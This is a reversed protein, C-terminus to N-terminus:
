PHANYVSKNFTLLGPAGAYGLHSLGFLSEISALLSFDNYEGVINISAPKTDQSILLLGVRGGGPVTSQTTGTEGAAGSTGAAAPASAPLNPFASTMCCGSADANPGTQPAQDFTIAILGGEKYAPSKEIQPVTTSLFTDAATLGAPAGAACPEESGDRCRDPVIYSLSPTSKATKLNSALQGVGVVSNTCTANGTVGEFYVFPDRWTVYPDEPTALHNADASGLTPHACNAPQAAGEGIGEVYAKWTLGKATLQQALTLTQSPYVCGSGLVQGGAGVTGPTIDAYLPCGEATQATPGQGSILAIENALEGDSVAYYDDLVEGQSALTKSLYPATSSPGFTANFGQDSLVILFVHKIASSGQGTSTNGPQSAKPKIARKSSKHKPASPTTTTSEATSEPVPTAEPASTPPLASQAPLSTTPAPTAHAVAVVLPGTAGSQRAPRVASGVLVGFALLVMVAIGMALPSPTPIQRGRDEGNGEPEAPLGEAAEEADAGPGHTSPLPIGIWEALAPRLPGRRSGCEVCYRQDHSLLSHCRECRSHRGTDAPLGSKPNIAV